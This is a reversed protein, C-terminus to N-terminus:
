GRKRTFRIETRARRTGGLTKSPHMFVEIVGPDPTVALKNLRPDKPPTEGEIVVPTGMEAATTEIGAILDLYDETKEVPPMFVHLRGDRPEVCLARHPHGMAGIRRPCAPSQSGDPQPKEEGGSSKGRARTPGSWLRAAVARQSPKCDTPSVSVGQATGAFRTGISGAHAAVSLRKLRGVARFGAAPATGDRFRWPTLGSRTTTACFGHAPCGARSIAM